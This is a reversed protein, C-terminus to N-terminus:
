RPPCRRSGARQTSLPTGSPLLLTCNLEIFLHLPHVCSEVMHQLSRQQHSLAVTLAVAPVTHTYPQLCHVRKTPSTPLVRNSLQDDTGQQTGQKILRQVMASCWVACAAVTQSHRRVKPERQCQRRLWWLQHTPIGHWLVPFVRHAAACTPLLVGCMSMPVPIPM